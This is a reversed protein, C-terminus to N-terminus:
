DLLGSAQRSIIAQFHRRLLRGSPQCSAKKRSTSPATGHWTMLKMGYARKLLAFCVLDLPQLIHSSHSPMCLAIIKEKKCMEHFQFSQHSEHGDVILLRHSGVSRAKTHTNFHKLWAIALENSTWGNPSVELIWDRPVDHYWSSILVKGAFIVFPPIAWGAASVGQIVTAWERNGPQIRKPASCKESGTFVIQAEIQGMMFGTEDFNYMDEDQIGYKQKVSQVLSFWPCIIRPDENLARQRDYPRNRRLNIEPSRKNFNGVWHKGVPREGREALLNNAMDQVMTRTAGIGRSDLDIIYTVILEEELETLRKSNPACDSRSPRGARRAHLTSKPVEYVAAARRGSEIEDKEISLLALQLTGENYTRPLDRQQPM